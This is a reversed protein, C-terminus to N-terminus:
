TARQRSTAEFGLELAALLSLPRSPKEFLQARYAAVSEALDDEEAQGSRIPETLIILPAIPSTERILALLDRADGEDLLWDVIYGDFSTSELATRFHAKSGYSLADLGKVRLFAVVVRALNDDDEIVAVRRRPRGEEHIIRHVEHVQRDGAESLPLVTWGTTSESPCAVLPGIHEGAPRLRGLWVSCPITLGGVRMMAPQGPKDALAALLEFLPVGFHSALRRIEEIKFPVEGEMRRRAPQYTVGVAAEIVAARKAKPVGDRDLLAQIAKVIEPEAKRNDAKNHQEM